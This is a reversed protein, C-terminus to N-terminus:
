KSGMELRTRASDQRFQAESSTVGSLKVLAQRMATADAARGAGDYLAAAKDLALAAGNPNGAACTADTGLEAFNRAAAEGDSARERQGGASALARCRDEGSPFRKVYDEYAAAAQAHKKQAALQDAAALVKSASQPDAGVVATASGAAPFANAVRAVLAKTAPALADEDDPCFESERAVAEAKKADVLQLAIRYKSGLKGVTGSLVYDAGLSGGASSLCAQDSCGMAQRYKQYGLLAVVDSRALVKVRGSAALEHTVMDALLSATGEKVGEVAKLDWVAVVPQAAALVAALIAVSTM